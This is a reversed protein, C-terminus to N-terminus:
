QRGGRLILDSLECAFWLRLLLSECWLSVGPPKPLLWSALHRRRDSNFDIPPYSTFRCPSRLCYREVEQNAEFLWTAEGTGCKISCDTCEYSSGARMSLNNSWIKFKCNRRPAIDPSTPPRSNSGASYQVNWKRCPGIMLTMNRPLRRIHDRQLTVHTAGRM